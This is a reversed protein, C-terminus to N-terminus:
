VSNEIWSLVELGAALFAEAESRNSLDPNYRWENVVSFKNWVEKNQRMREKAALATLLMRLNHTFPTQTVGREILRRELQELTRCQWVQMMKWKLCCEVAYGALYMAGRWRKGRFLVQADEWRHVSAKRQETIGSHRKRAM